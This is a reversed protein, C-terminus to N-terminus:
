RALDLAMMQKRDRLYLRTGVLTPATWSRGSFVQARAQVELGNPGVTAM